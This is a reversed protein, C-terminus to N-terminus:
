FWIGSKFGTAQQPLVCFKLRKKLFVGSSIYLVFNWFSVFNCAILVVNKLKKFTLIENKFYLYNFCITLIKNM